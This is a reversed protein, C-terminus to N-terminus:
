LFTLGNARRNTPGDTSSHKKKLITLNRAKSDDPFRSLGPYPSRGSGTVVTPRTDPRSYTSREGCRRLGMGKTKFVLSPHLPGDVALIEREVKGDDEEVAFWKDVVFVASKRTSLDKVLIRSLFWSPSSGSNDHWVQVKWIAGLSKPM